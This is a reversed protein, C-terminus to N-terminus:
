LGKGVYIGNVYNKSIDSKCKKCKNLPRGNFYDFEKLDKVEGCVVCRQKGKPIFHSIDTNNRKIFDDLLERGKYSNLKGNIKSLVEEKTECQKIAQNIEDKDVIDELRKAALIM